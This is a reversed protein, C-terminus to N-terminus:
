PAACHGAKCAIPGPGACDDVPCPNGQGDKGPTCFMNYQATRRDVTVKSLPIYPCGFLCICDSPSLIEHDIEGWGCDGAVSCTDYPGPVGADSFAGSSSSSGGSSSSGTSSGSSGGPVTVIGGCAVLLLAIGAIPARHPSHTFNMSAEAGM